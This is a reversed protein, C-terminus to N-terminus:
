KKLNRIECGQEWSNALEAAAEIAENWIQAAYVNLDGTPRAKIGVIKANADIKRTIELGRQEIENIDYKIEHVVKGSKTDKVTVGERYLAFWKNAEDIAFKKDPYPGSVTAGILNEIAYTTTVNKFM